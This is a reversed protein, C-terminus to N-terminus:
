NIKSGNLDSVNINYYEGLIHILKYHLKLFEDYATQESMINICYKELSMSTMEDQALNKDMIKIEKPFPYEFGFYRAITEETKNEYIKLNEGLIAKVPGPIDGFGIAETFSEHHLFIYALYPNGSLMFAEAGRICHQAVSMPSNGCYRKLRSLAKAIREPTIYHFEKFELLNVIIGDQAVSAGKINAEANESQYGKLLTYM